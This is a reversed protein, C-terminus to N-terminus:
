RPVSESWGDVTDGIPAALVEQQCPPIDRRGESAETVSAYPSLPQSKM